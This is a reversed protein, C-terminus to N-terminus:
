FVRDYSISLLTSNGHQSAFGIGSKDKWADLQVKLASAANIDYRVVGSITRHGEPASNPDNL